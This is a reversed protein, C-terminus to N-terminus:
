TAKVKLAKNGEVRYERTLEIVIWISKKILINNDKEQNETWAKNM